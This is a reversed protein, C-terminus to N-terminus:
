RDGRHLGSVGLLAGGLAPGALRAVNAGIANVANVEALRGPPAVDPVLTHSSPPVFQALCSRLFSVVAFWWWTEHGLYALTTAALALNTLVLVRRANWRDVLTGVVQAIGVAPAYEALTVLGTAEVSGTLVYTYYPLAVFMAGSGVASVVGGASVLAVDRHALVRLSGAM